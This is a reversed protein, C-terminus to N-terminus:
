SAKLPLLWCKWITQPSLFITIRGNCVDWIVIVSARWWERNWKYSVVRERDGHSFTTEVSMKGSCAFWCSKVWSNKMHCNFKYKVWYGSDLQTCAYISLLKLWTWSKAVGHVISRWAGRDMPNDLCSYQFPNRHWGGPSKGLGPILHIDWTGQM